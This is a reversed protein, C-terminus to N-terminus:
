NGSKFRMEGAANFEFMPGWAIEWYYGDPDSFYGSYGGWFTDQAPKAIRAGAAEARQMIAQVDERSRANHALTFGSFTGRTAPVDPGIDAALQNLPYLSIWAGPLKLFAVGENATDPEIDLVARYFRTARALDDVGLTIMSIRPIKM